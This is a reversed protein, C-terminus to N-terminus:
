CVYIHAKVELNLEVFYVLLLVKSHQDEVPIPGPQELVSKQNHECASNPIWWEGDALLVM